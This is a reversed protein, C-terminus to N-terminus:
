NIGASVWRGDKALQFFECQGDTGRETLPVIRARKNHLSATGTQHRWKCILIMLHRQTRDLRKDGGMGKDKLHAVEQASHLSYTFMCQCNPWRCHQDRARVDEKADREAQILALAKARREKVVPKLRKRIVARRTPKGFKLASYDIM